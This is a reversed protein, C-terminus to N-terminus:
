LKIKLYKNYKNIWSLLIVAIDIESDYRITRIDFLITKWYIMLNCNNSM